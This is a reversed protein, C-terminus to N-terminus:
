YSIYKHWPWVESDQTANMNVDHLSPSIVNQLVSLVEPYM